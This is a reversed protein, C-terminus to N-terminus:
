TGALRRNEWDRFCQHLADQVLLMRGTKEIPVQLAQALADIDFRDLADVPRGQLRETALSCAAITHPCGYAQFVIEAICGSEIRAQFRLRAGHERQGAQGTFVTAPDGDLPGVNLPADFHRAVLESYLETGNM